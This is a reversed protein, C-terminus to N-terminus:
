TAIMTLKSGLHSSKGLMAKIVVMSDGFVLLEKVNAEKAM